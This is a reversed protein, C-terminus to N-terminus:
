GAVSGVLDEAVGPPDQFPGFHGLHAFERVQSRGLADHLPAIFGRPRSLEGRRGYALVCPLAVGAVQDTTLRGEAAFTAAERAPPCRM